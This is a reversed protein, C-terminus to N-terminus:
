GQHGGQKMGALKLGRVNTFGASVKKTETKAKKKSGEKGGAAAKKRKGGTVAEAEEDEDALEDVEEEGEQERQVIQAQGEDWETPDQATQYAERLGGTAKRHGSELYSSIDSPTLPTLDRQNLWSSPTLWTRL